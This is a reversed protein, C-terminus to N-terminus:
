KAGLKLLVQTLADQLAKQSTAIGDMTKEVKAMHERFDDRRVFSDKIDNIRGHLAEYQSDHKAREATLHGEVEAVRRDAEKTAAEIKAATVRINLWSQGAAALVTFALAAGAIIDSTTM